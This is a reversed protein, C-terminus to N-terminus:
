SRKPVEGSGCSRAPSPRRSAAACEIALRCGREMTVGPGVLRWRRLEHLENEGQERRQQERGTRFRRRQERPDEGGALEADDGALLLLFDLELNM